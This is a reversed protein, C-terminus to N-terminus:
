SYTLGVDRSNNRMLESTREAVGEVDHTHSRGWVFYAVWTLIISVIYGVPGGPHPEYLYHAKLFGGFHFISYVAMGLLVSQRLGVNSPNRLVTFCMTSVMADGSAAISCWFMATPSPTGGFYEVTGKTLFEYLLISPIPLVFGMWFFIKQPLTLENM